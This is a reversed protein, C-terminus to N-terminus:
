SSRIARSQTTRAGSLLLSSTSAGRERAPQLHDVTSDPANIFRGRGPRPGSTPRLREEGIPYCVATPLQRKYRPLLSEVADHGLPKQLRRSDSFVLPRGNQDPARPDSLRPPRRAPSGVPYRHTPARRFGRPNFPESAAMPQDHGSAPCGGGTRSRRRRAARPVLAGRRPPDPSLGARALIRVTYGTRPLAARSRAAARSSGARPSSRPGPGPHTIYNLLRQYHTCPRSGSIRTSCLTSARPLDRLADIMSGRTPITSSRSRRSLPGAM